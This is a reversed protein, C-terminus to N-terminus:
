QVNRLTVNGGSGFKACEGDVTRTAVERVFATLLLSISKLLSQPGSLTLPSWLLGLCLTPRPALPKLKYAQGDVVM